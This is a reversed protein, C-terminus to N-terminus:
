VSHTTSYHCDFLKWLSPVDIFVEAVQLEEFCKFATNQFCPLMEYKHAFANFIKKGFRM